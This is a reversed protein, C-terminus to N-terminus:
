LALKKIVNLKEMESKLGTLPALPHNALLNALPFNAPTEDLLLNLHHHGGPDLLLDPPVVAAVRQRPRLKLILALLSGSECM